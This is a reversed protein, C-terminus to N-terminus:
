TAHHVVFLVYHTVLGRKTRVDGRFFDAAAIVDAHSKLFTKWTTPRDPSPAIGNKKLTTAITTKAVCHGVKGNEEALYEIAQAQRRNIWGGFAALLFRLPLNDVM